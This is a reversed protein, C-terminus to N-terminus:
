DTYVLSNMVLHEEIAGLGLVYQQEEVTYPYEVDEPLWLWETLLEELATKSIDLAYLCDELPKNHVGEVKLSELAQKIEKVIM